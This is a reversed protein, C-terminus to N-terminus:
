WVVHGCRNLVPDDHTYSFAKIIHCALTMRRQLSGVYFIQSRTPDGLFDLFSAHHVTIRMKRNQPVALLSHLGRLILQVDDQQLELLQEIHEVELEFKAAIVTLITFLHPRAPVVSLIQTYLQDLPAFPSGFDPKKTGMIVQLRETPRFDGDDIFKIVTSAYIFYGSSNEVLTDIVKPSPWPFSVTAM